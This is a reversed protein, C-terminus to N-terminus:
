SCWTKTSPVSQPTFEKSWHPTSSPLTSACRTSASSSATRRGGGVCSLEVFARTRRRRRAFPPVLHRSAPRRSGRRPSSSWMCRPIIPSPRIPPFMTRRSSLAPGRRRRTRGTARPRRRARSPPRPRRSRAPRGRPSAGPAARRRSSPAPRPPRRSRRRAPGGGRAPRRRRPRRCSTSRRRGGAPSPARRSPSGSRRRRSSRRRTRGRARTSGSSRRRAPPRRAGRGPRRRARARRRPARRARGPRLPGGPVASCRSGGSRDWRRRAVEHLHDVVADLVPEHGRVGLPEVDQLLRGDPLLRVRDVGLRRRQAVRLVVPVVEVQGLDGLEPPAAADDARPQEVQGGARQGRLGAGRPTRPARRRSPRPASSPAPRRRRPRARAPASRPARRASRTGRGPRSRRGPARPWARAREAAVRLLLRSRRGRGVGEDEVARRAVERELLDEGRELPHHLPAHEVHGDDAHGSLRQLARRGGCVRARSLTAVCPPPTSSAAKAFSARAAASRRLAVVGVRRGELRDAALEVPGRAGHVVHRDRLVSKPSTHRGARRPRSCRPRAARADLLGEAAVEGRRPSSLAVSWACKASLSTKRM